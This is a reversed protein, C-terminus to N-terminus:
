KSPGILRCLPLFFGFAYLLSYSVTATILTAMQVFFGMNCLFLFVGSSFTTFAGAIVTGGMKEVSFIVAEVRTIKEQQHLGLMLM